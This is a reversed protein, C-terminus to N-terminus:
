ACYVYTRSIMTQARRNESGVIKVAGVQAAVIIGRSRQANIASNWCKTSLNLLIEKSKVSVDLLRPSLVGL